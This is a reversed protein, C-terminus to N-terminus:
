KTKEGVQLTKKLLGSMVCTHIHKGDIKGIKAKFYFKYFFYAIIITIAIIIAIIVLSAVEQSLIIVPPPATAEIPTPPTTESM